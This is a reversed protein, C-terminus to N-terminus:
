CVGIGQCYERGERRNQLKPQTPQPEEQTLIPESSTEVVPQIEPPPASRSEVKLDSLNATESSAFLFPLTLILGFTKYSKQLM